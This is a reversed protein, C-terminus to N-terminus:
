KTGKLQAKKALGAALQASLDISHTAAYAEMATQNANMTATAGDIHRQRNAADTVLVYVQLGTGYDDMLTIEERGQEPIIRSNVLDTM